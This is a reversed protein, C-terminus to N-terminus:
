GSADGATAAAADMSAIAPRPRAPPMVLYLAIGLLPLLACIFFGIAYTTVEIVLGLVIGGLVAGVDWAMTYTAAGGGRGEPPTRDIILALTTVQVAAFSLGYLVAAALLMTQTQATTILLLSVAGMALSPLIVQTRGLRDSLAGSLARSILLALGWVTYFLGVNGLNREIAFLPLFAQVAGVTTTMSLFVLAPAVAPRTIWVRARAPAASLRTGEHDPILVAVGLAAAAFIAAVGFGASFSVGLALAVMLPAGYMQSIANASQYLGMGLGRRRGTLMGSVIALQATTFLGMAIGHVFRFGITVWPNSTTAYGLFAVITLVAGIRQWRRRNGGDVWIGVLPRTLMGSIGMAGVVLGVLWDPRGALSQPVGVISMAYAVFYLHVALLALVFPGGGLEAALRPGGAPRVERTGAAVEIM